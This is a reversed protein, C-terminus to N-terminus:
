KRTLHFYLFVNVEPAPNAAVRREFRTFFSDVVRRAVVFDGGRASALKSVMFDQLCHSLM